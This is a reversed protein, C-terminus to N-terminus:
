PKIKITGSLSGKIIFVSGRISSFPIEIMGANKKTSYLRVGTASYITITEAHSSKITLTSNIFYAYFSSNDINEISTAVWDVNIPVTLLDEKIPTGDDQIFDLNKIAVEYKGESVNDSVTYAIKMIKQYEIDKSSKLANPKIEILWTNNGEYTFTLFFSGSLAPSLVTLEEDLTMGEMFQIEFSGTLTADSPISLSLEIAGKGDAGVPQTEDPVVVPIDDNAQEVITGFDKWVDAAEYLAKTGYPVHLTCTATNSGYFIGYFIDDDTSLILPEAWNVTVNELQCYSFARDQISVVSNPISISTFSTAFFAGGLINTVSNPISFDATNKGSPYTHLVTKDKNYLVGDESSYYMNDEAVNIALLGWCDGFAWSGISEVSNPILVSQLGGCYIFAEDGISKVSNPITISNFSCDAFVTNGITTLTNPLTVTVLNYCWSFANDDIAIVGEPIIVSTIDYNDYFVSNGIETIGLDGPIVVDGGAGRYGILIGDVVVFDSNAVVTITCSASFNGEETTVTITASGESLTTVLGSTSVTAVSEDSSSWTVNKDSASRPEVTATLQLTDNVSIIVTTKDLSVGSVPAQEDITGFTGWVPDAQYAAVKGIPVHLSCASTNVFEFAASNVTLPTTWNVTLDELNQCYIFAEDQISVVSNPISISTFNSGWFAGALINTVSNPISFYVTNKGGPYTLLTTKNKNYLVGEDSSYYM